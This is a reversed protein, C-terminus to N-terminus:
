RPSSGICPEPGHAYLFNILYAIDSMTIVDTCDILGAGIPCPAPGGLFIYNVLFVADAINVSADGYATTANGVTYDYEYAGIDIAKGSFVISTPDGKDICPSNCMLSYDGNAPDVFLPDASIDHVGSQTGAYNAGNQWFANYDAISSGAEIAASACNAFINNRIDM